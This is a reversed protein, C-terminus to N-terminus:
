WGGAGGATERSAVVEWGSDPCAADAEGPEGSCLVCVCVCMTWLEAKEYVTHRHSDSLYSEYRLVQTSLYSNQHCGMNVVANGHQWIFCWISQLPNNISKWENWCRFVWQMTQLPQLPSNLKAWCKSFVHNQSHSNNRYGCYDAFFCDVCAQKNDYKM